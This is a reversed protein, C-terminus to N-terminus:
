NENNIKQEYAINELASVYLNLRVKGNDVAEHLIIKSLIKADKGLKLQLHEEAQKVGVQVAEKETRQLVNEKLEYAQVNVISLPLTWKFFALDNVSEEEYVSNYEPAKFRLLPLKKNGVKLTYYQKSNGTLTKSNVELPISIDMEYWTNAYVEGTARILIQEVQDKEENEEESQQENDNIIGSVLLDGEKVYDYKNVLPVGRRVYMYEIVGNKKAVLHQPETPEHQKAVKKEVGEVFFSTGKKEIGLWLLQPVDNVITTQITSLRGLKFQLAGVYIGHDKLETKIKNEIDKSVGKINVSWVTNSIIFLTIISIIIATLLHKQKWLYYVFATCGRKDVFTLDYQENLSENVAIVKQKDHLYIKVECFDGTEGKKVDWMPIHRDVCLQLFTEINDGKVIFTVHGVIKKGQIQRM